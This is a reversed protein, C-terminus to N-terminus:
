EALVATLNVLCQAFGSRRKIDHRDAWSAVVLCNFVASSTFRSVVKQPAFIGKFRTWVMHNGKLSSPRFDTVLYPNVFQYSFVLTSKSTLTGWPCLKWSSWWFLAGYGRKLETPCKPTNKVSVETSFM